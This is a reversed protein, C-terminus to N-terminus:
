DLRKWYKIECGYEQQVGSAPVSVTHLSLAYPPAYTSNRVPVSWASYKANAAVSIATDFLYSYGLTAGTDTSRAINFTVAGIASSVLAYCRVGTITITSYTVPHTMGINAAFTGSAVFVDGGSHLVITETSVTVGSGASTAIAIDWLQQDITDMGTNFPTVYNTDGAVPKALNFHTTYTLASVNTALAFFLIYKIM